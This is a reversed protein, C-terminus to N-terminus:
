KVFYDNENFNPFKTKILEVFRLTARTKPVSKYHFKASSRSYNKIQILNCKFGNGNIWEALEINRMIKKLNLLQKSYATLFEKIALHIDTTGNRKNKINKYTIGQELVTNYYNAWYEYDAMTKLCNNNAKQYNKFIVHYTDYSLKDKFPKTTFCLKNENLYSSEYVFDPLRKFDFDMNVKVAKTTQILKKGKNIVDSIPITTTQQYSTNKNRNMYLNVIWNNQEYKAKFPTQIGAKSLIIKEDDQGQTITAIGRTRWPILKNAIHKKELINGCGSLIKRYYAFITSLRGNCASSIEDDSANSIFGDTTVSIIQKNYPINNMIESILARVYGTIYSAFYSNTIKSKSIQKTSGLRSDFARKMGIGQSIKGFLSNGLQKWFLNELAHKPFSKRTEQVIKIFGLFSYTRNSVYPFIRGAKIELSAGLQKALFIEPSTAFSEGELPFLLGNDTRVPLCPYRTHAPFKFHVNAYGPIEPSYQLADMCEFSNNHDISDLMALVTTYASCIDWDSWIDEETIGYFYCENKGGHFSERSFSDHLNSFLSPIRIDYSNYTDTNENMFSINHMEYGFLDDVDFNNIKAYDLFLQESFSGITSPINSGDLYELSMDFYKLFYSMVIASKNSCYKQLLKKDDDSLCAIDNLYKDPLSVYEHNVSAALDVLTTKDPSLLLSDFLYVYTSFSNNNIDNIRCKLPKTATVYSKNILHFKSQISMFNKLSVLFESSNYCCLIIGDPNKSGPFAKKFTDVVINLFKNFNIKNDNKYSCDFVGKEPSYVSFYYNSSNPTSDTPHHNFISVFISKQLDSKIKM